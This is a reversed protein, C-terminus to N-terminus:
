SRVEGRKRSLYRNRNNNSKNMNNIINNDDSINNNNNNNNNNINSILIQCTWEAATAEMAYMVGDRWQSDETHIM